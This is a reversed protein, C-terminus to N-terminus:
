KTKVSNDTTNKTSTGSIDNLDLKYSKSMDLGTSYEVKSTFKLGSLKGNGFWIDNNKNWITGDSTCAIYGDTFRYQVGNVGTFNASFSYNDTLTQAERIINYQQDITIEDFIKKIFNQADNENNFTRGMMQNAIYTEVKNAILVAETRSKMEYFYGKDGSSTWGTCTTNATNIATIFYQTIATVKKEAFTSKTKSSKLWKDAIQNLGADNSEVLYDLWTSDNYMKLTPNGSLFNNFYTAILTANNVEKIVANSKSSFMSKVRTFSTTSDTSQNNSSDTTSQSCGSILGFGLLIICIKKM